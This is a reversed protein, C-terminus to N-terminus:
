MVAELLMKSVYGEKDYVMRLIRDTEMETENKSNWSVEYVKMEDVTGDARYTTAVGKPEVYYTYQKHRDYDNVYKGDYTGIVVNKYVMDKDIIFIVENYKYIKDYAGVFRGDDNKYYKNKIYEDRTIKFCDIGNYKGIRGNM